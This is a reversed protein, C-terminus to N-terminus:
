LDLLSSVARCWVCFLRSGERGDEGDVHPIRPLMASRTLGWFRPPSLDKETATFKWGMHSGCNRCQAITWAYRLAFLLPCRSGRWARKLALSFIDARFSSKHIKYKLRKTWEWHIHAALKGITRANKISSKHSRRKRLSPVLLVFNSNELITNINQVEYPLIKDSHICFHEQLPVSM